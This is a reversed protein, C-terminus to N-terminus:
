RGDSRKIMDINNEQCSVILWKFDNFSLQDKNKEKSSIDDIKM